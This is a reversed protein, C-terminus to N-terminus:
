QCLYPLNCHPLYPFILRIWFLSSLPLCQYCIGASARCLSFSSDLAASLNPARQAHSLLFHTLRFLSFSRCLLFHLIILALPLALDLSLYHPRISSFLPRLSSFSRSSLTMLHFLSLSFTSPRFPPSVSSPAFVVLECVISNM